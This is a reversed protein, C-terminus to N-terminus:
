LPSGPPTLGIKLRLQVFKQAEGAPLFFKLNVIQSVWCVSDLRASVSVHRDLPEIMLHPQDTIDSRSKGFNLATCM